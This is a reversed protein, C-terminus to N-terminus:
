AARFTHAGTHTIIVNTDVHVDYGAQRARHCFAWDESLFTSNVSTVNFFDWHSQPAGTRPNPYFYHDTTEALKMLVDRRICMFATGVFPVKVLNSGHKEAMKRTGEVSRIGDTFFEEDEAFPLYNLSIPYIKLPCLGAVIPHPSDLIAKMQPWSWGADADIFLLKDYGDTLCVNAIHNRGRQILSEGTLTYLNLHYGHQLITQQLGHQHQPNNPDFGPTGAVVQNILADKHKIVANFSDLFSLMFQTTVMGGGCPTGVLVKM